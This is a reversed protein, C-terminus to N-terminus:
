RVGQLGGIKKLAGCPRGSARSSCRRRIRALYERQRSVASKILRAAFAGFSRGGSLDLGGLGPLFAPHFSLRVPRGDATKHRSLFNLTLFRGVGGFRCAM